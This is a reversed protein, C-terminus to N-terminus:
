ASSTDGLAVFRGGLGEGCTKAESERSFELRFTVGELDTSCRFADPEFRHADLWERIEGM